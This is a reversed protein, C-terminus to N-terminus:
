EDSDSCNVDDYGMYRVCSKRGMEIDDLALTYCVVDKLWGNSAVRYYEIRELHDEIDVEFPISYRTALFSM